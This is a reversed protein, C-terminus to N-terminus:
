VIWRKRAKSVVVVYRTAEFNVKIERCKGTEHLM